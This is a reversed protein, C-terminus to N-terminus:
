NQITLRKYPGISRIQYIKHLVALFSYNKIFVIISANASCFSLAPHVYIAIWCNGLGELMKKHWIRKLGLIMWAQALSQDNKTRANIRRLKCKYYGFQSSFKRLTSWENNMKNYKLQPSTPVQIFIIRNLHPQSRYLFLWNTPSTPMM